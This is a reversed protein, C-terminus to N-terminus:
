TKIWRQPIRPAPIAVAAAITTSATNIWQRQRTTNFSRRHRLLSRCANPIAHNHESSSLHAAATRTRHKQAPTRGSLSRRRNEPPRAPGSRTGCRRPTPPDSSAPPARTFVQNEPFNKSTVWFISLKCSRAPLRFM